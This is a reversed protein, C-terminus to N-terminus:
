CRQLLQVSRAAVNTVQYFNALSAKAPSLHYLTLPQSTLPNVLATGNLSTIATYNSPLRTTSTRGIQDKNNRHYYGARVSLNSFLQQEWNVTVEDSYPHRLNPDVTTFIGGSTSIIANNL